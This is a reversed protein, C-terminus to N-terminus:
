ELEDIAVLKGTVFMRHSAIGIPTCTQLTVASFNRIMLATWDTPGTILTEYYEYTYRKGQWILYILDGNTLTDLYYFENGYIDRHGAISVNANEAGPLQACYFLGVGDRLRVDVADEGVDNPDPLGLVPVELDLRPISLILDNDKYKEREPTIVLYDGVPYVIRHLELSNDTATKTIPNIFPADAVPPLLVRTNVVYHQWILYIGAFMMLAAIIIFIPRLVAAKGRKQRTRDPYRDYFQEMINYPPM